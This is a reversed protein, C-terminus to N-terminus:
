LREEELKLKKVRNEILMQEMKRQRLELAAQFKGSEQMGTIFKKDKPSMTDIPLTGFGLFHSTLQM